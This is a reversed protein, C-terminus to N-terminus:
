AKIGHAGAQAVHQQSAVAALREAAVYQHKAIGNMSAVVALTVVVSLAFAAVQQLSKSM